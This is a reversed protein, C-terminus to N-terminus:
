LGRNHGRGGMILRWLEQIKVKIRIEKLLMVSSVWPIFSALLCLLSISYSSPSEFISFHVSVPLTNQSTRAYLSQPYESASFFSAIVSLSASPVSVAFLLSM